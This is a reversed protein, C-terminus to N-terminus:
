PLLIKKKISQKIPKTFNNKVSRFFYIAIFEIGCFTILFIAIKTILAHM